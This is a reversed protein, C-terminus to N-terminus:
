TLNLTEIDGPEGFKVGKLVPDINRLLGSLVSGAGVEVYRCMGKAALHRITDM